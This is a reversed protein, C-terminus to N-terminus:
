ATIPFTEVDAGPPDGSTETEGFLPANEERARNQEVAVRLMVGLAAWMGAAGERPYFTEGGMAAVLLALVLACVVGGAAACLLDSKDLFLRFGNRLAMLFFPVVVFFGVLGCDLLIELYANHPHPFSESDNTDYLIRQYLGTTIMANRGFGFIPGEKIKAIVYPWAINRGSTMEYTDTTKNGVGMGMLMRDRVAPLFICVAIVVAPIVLLMRRWRVVGLILGVALWGMYGSRGGTLAQGLAVVGAAGLMACKRLRTKVLPLMALMAWSAGALMMSLTVRNYGVSDQVLKYALHDFNDAVAYSLPVHKIVQAALLFYLSVIVFLAVMVRRRTRCVDYLILCPIFWKISNIINESIVDGFTFGYRDPEHFLFCVASLVIVALYGLLLNRIYRPMDWVLGESRRRVLWACTVNAMLLNWLNLGQIGGINKLTYLVDPHQMIAMLLISACLSVFYNRWAYVSFCLTLLVCLVVRISM